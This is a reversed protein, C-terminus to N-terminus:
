GSNGGNWTVNMCCTEDEAGDIFIRSRKGEVPVVFRPTPRDQAKNRVSLMTRFSAAVKEVAEKRSVTEFWGDDNRKIFRGNKSHVTDIVQDTALRKGEKDGNQFDDLLDRVYSRMHQNGSHDQFVKGRGLIVDHLGPIDVFDFTGGQKLVRDKAKQKAMWKQQNGTRLDQDTALPLSNVPIGFSM